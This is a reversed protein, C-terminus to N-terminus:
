FITIKEVRYGATTCKAIEGVDEHTWFKKDIGLTKTLSIDSFEHKRQLNLDYKVNHKDRRGQVHNFIIYTATTRSKQAM